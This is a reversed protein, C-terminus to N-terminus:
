CVKEIREFQKQSNKSSAPLVRTLKTPNNKIAKLFLILPVQTTNKYNRLEGKPNNYITIPIIEESSGFFANPAYVDKSPEVKDGPKFIACVKMPAPKWYPILTPILKTYGPLASLTETSIVCFVVNKDCDFQKQYSLFSNGSNLKLDM